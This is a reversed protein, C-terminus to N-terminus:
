LAVRPWAMLADPGREDDGVTVPLTFMRAHAPTKFRCGEARLGRRLDLHLKGEATFFAEAAAAAASKRHVIRPWSDPVAGQEAM